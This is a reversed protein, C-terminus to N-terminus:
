LDSCRERAARTVVHFSDRNNLKEHMRLVVAEVAQVRERSLSGMRICQVWNEAIRQLVGDSDIGQTDLFDMSRMTTEEGRIDSWVDHLASGIAPYKDVERRAETLLEVVSDAVSTGGSIMVDLQSEKRRPFLLERLADSSAEVIKQTFEIRMTEAVGLLSTRLEQNKMPGAVEECIFAGRLLAQVRLKKRNNHTFAVGDNAKRVVMSLIEKQFSKDSTTSDLKDSSSSATLQRLLTDCSQGLEGIRSIVKRLERITRNELAANSTEAFDTFLADDLMGTMQATAQGTITQEVHACISDSLTAIIIPVQALSTDPNMTSTESLRRLVSVAEKFDELDAVSISDDDNKVGDEISVRKSQVKSSKGPTAVEKRVVNGILEDVTGSLWIAFDDPSLISDNTYLESARKKSHAVFCDNGRFTDDYASSISKIDELMVNAAHRLQFAGRTLGSRGSVRAADNEPMTSRLIAHSTNLFFSRLEEDDIMLFVRIRMVDALSLGEISGSEEEVQAILDVVVEKIAATLNAHAEKFSDSNKALAELQPLIIACRHATLFLRDRMNQPDTCLGTLETLQAPLETCLVEAARLLLMVRRSEELGEIRDRLPAMEESIRVCEDCARGVRALAGDTNGGLTACVERLEGCESAATDVQEYCRRVSGHLSREINESEVRIKTSTRVLKALPLRKILDAAVWKSGNAGPLSSSSNTSALEDSARNERTSKSAGYYGSGQGNRPRRAISEM